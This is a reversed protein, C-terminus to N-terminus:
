TLLPSTMLSRIIVPINFGNGRSSSLPTFQVGSGSLPLCQAGDNSICSVKPVAYVAELLCRKPWWLQYFLNWPSSDKRLLQSDRLQDLLEKCKITCCLEDVGQIRLDFEAWM